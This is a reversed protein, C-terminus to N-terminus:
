GIFSLNSLHAYKLLNLKLIGISRTKTINLKDIYLRKCGRTKTTNANRLRTKVLRVYSTLKIVLNDKENSICSASIHAIYYCANIMVSTSSIARIEVVEGGEVTRAFLGATIGKEETNFGAMEGSIKETSDKNYESGEYSIKPWKEAAGPKGIYAKLGSKNNEDGCKGPTHSSGGLM